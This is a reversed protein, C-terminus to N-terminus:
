GSKSQHYLFHFMFMAHCMGLLSLFVVTRLDLSYRRPPDYSMYLIMCLPFFLGFLHTVQSCHYQDLEKTLIYVLNVLAWYMLLVNVHWITPNYRLTFFGYVIGLAVHEYM